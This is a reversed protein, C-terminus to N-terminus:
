LGASETIISGYFYYVVVVWAAVLLLNVGISKIFTFTQKAIANILHGRNSKIVEITAEMYMIVLLMLYAAFYLLGFNRHLFIMLGITFGLLWHRWGAWYAIFLLPLWLDLRLPTVQLITVPAHALTYVRFLVVTIIFYVILHKNTFFKNSFVLLSIFFLFYGLQGILHLYTLDPQLKMWACVILSLFLDYQMYIERLPIGEIIKLSPTLIFEYDFISIPEYQIFCVPIMLLSFAIVFLRYDKKNVANLFKIILLVVALQLGIQIFDIGEFDTEPPLIRVMNLFIVTGVISAIILPKKITAFSQQFNIRYIILGALLFLNVSIFLIYSEIGDHEHVSKQIVPTLETLSIKLNFSHIFSAFCYFTLYYLWVSTTITSFTLLISSRISHYKNDCLIEKYLYYCFFLTILGQLSYSIIQM